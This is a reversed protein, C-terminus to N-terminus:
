GSAGRCALRATRGGQNMTPRVARGDQRAAGTVEVNPQLLSRCRKCTVRDANDSTEPLMPSEDSILCIRRNCLTTQADRTWHWRTYEVESLRRKIERKAWRVAHQETM